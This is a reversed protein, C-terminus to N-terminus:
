RAAAVARATDEATQHADIAAACRRQILPSNLLANANDKTRTSSRKLANGCTSSGRWYLNWLVKKLREDDLGALKQFFQVRDMRRMPM